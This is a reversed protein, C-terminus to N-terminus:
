APLPDSVSAYAALKSDMTLLIDEWAEYMSKLASNLYDLLAAIQGFM